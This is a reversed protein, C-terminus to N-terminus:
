ADREQARLCGRHEDREIQEGEAIPIERVFRETHTAGLQLLQQFSHIVRHVERAGAAVVADRPAPERLELPLVPRHRPWAARHM